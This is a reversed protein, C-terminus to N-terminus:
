LPALKIWLWQAARAKNSYRVTHGTEACVRRTLAVGPTEDATEAGLGAATSDGFVMLHLDVPLDQDRRYPIPGTGDPLYVGDGDPANDTRHPIITRATAAQYHLFNYFAWSAGATTAAAAATAGVDRLVRNDAM